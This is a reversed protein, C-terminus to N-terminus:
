ASKASLVEEFSDQPFLFEFFTLVYLAVLMVLDARMITRWGSRAEIAIAFALATGLAVAAFRFIEAPTGSPLGAATAVAGVIIIATSVRLRQASAGLGAANRKQLRQLSRSEPM